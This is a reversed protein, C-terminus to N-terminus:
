DNQQEMVLIAGAPEGLNDRLSSCVVRIVVERGRRNVAAMKVEDIFAPDALASRVIPRLDAVPLGIDLNLLHEGEAEDRRVGWLEEAGRNWALVRMQLDLVVVGARLSTLISELFENVQDLEATRERLTDNITQLEDNTSQLEENMTELEENTSQLEENTTELEEVTSQLEENTTELEENTSQLEEYASELQRNAFELDELLRRASTVDHFVVSVGLVANDTGVLPNVHIEFWLSEGPARMWEVDKVRLSKRELRAQEVYGRLEIPRYSIDLDRLPRGADKATLGFTTQAQQNALAVVDDATVVVQAVPSASFAHERLEDIGAVDVRRDHAIPYSAFSGAHGSGNPAKRFIRRKLDIPDFIRSHSLLMEAKGLFLVGKPVLAFHFRGLIKSQTEQNFYMLTNRCVLLDIRSIPADQVLDNRGFIISRRLDKRFSYRGNQPEFYKATLEPPVDRLDREGYGALRAQTLAENDVDTAYIKVQQRFRDTGLAEALAIALSYAEEGSACGASWVRIPDDPGREALIAPIVEERLYTWTETDRFFGTVNILITNFLANFEDANVQLQDIYDAYNEMGVQSMRHRVRRQLSTRKYGTFDFGRSEKLYLLVEEFAQDPAPRRDNM